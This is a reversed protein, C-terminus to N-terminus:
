VSAFVKDVAHANEGETPLFIKDTNNSGPVTNLLLLDIEVSDKDKPREQPVLVPFWGKCPLMLSRKSVVQPAILSRCFECM